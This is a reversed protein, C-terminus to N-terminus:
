VRTTGDFVRIDLTTVQEAAPDQPTGIDNREGQFKLREPPDFETRRTTGRLRGHTDIFLALVTVHDWTVTTLDVTAAYTIGFEPAPKLRTTQITAADVQAPTELPVVTTLGARVSEIHDSTNSDYRVAQQWTTGSPLYHCSTTLVDVMTPGMTSGHLVGWTPATTRAQTEFMDTLM